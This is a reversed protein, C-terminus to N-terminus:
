INGVYTGNKNVPLLFGFEAFVASVMCSTVVLPTGTGTAGSDSSDGATM